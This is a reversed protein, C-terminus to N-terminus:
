LKHILSGTLDIRNKYKAYDEMAKIIDDKTQMHTDRSLNLPFSKAGKILINREILFEEATKM